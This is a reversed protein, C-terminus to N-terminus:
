WTTVGTDWTSKLKEFTDIIMTCSFCLQETGDSGNYLELFNRFKEELRFTGYLEMFNWLTESHVRFLDNDSTTTAWM